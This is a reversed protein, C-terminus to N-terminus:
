LTDLTINTKTKIFHLANKIVFLSDCTGNTEINFIVEEYTTYTRLYYSVHKIPTYSTDCYVTDKKYGYSSSPMFGYGVSAHIVMKIQHGEVVTFLHENKNIIKIDRNHIIDNATVVCPGKKKLKIMLPEINKAKILLKKINSTLLVVDEEIGPINKYTHLSGMNKISFGIIGVGPTYRLIVRRLMNAFSSGFGKEMPGIFFQVGFLDTKIISIKPKISPMYLNM